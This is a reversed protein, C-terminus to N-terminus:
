TTTQSNYYQLQNKHLFIIKNQSFRRLTIKNTNTNDAVITLNYSIHIYKRIKKLGSNFSFWDM